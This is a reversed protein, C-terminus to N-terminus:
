KEEEKIEIDSLAENINGFILEQEVTHKESETLAKNKMSNVEMFNGLKKFLKTEM